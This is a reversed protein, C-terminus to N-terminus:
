PLWVYEPSNVLTWVLDEARERWNASLQTTPPDGKEFERQRAIRIENSRTQLHNSWNVGDRAPWGPVPGAKAGTKRSSFDDALLSVFVDRESETPPRSLIQRFAVEVFDAPTEAALAMTVFASDESLQAARKAFVGNALIAPQLVTPEKERYTLPDQRTARWGFSELLTVATQAGPLSLSPRDRENGMTAFRWARTPLGLHLSGTELRGGDSDVTIEETHAEKGATALLSDLVQEATMRRRLPAALLRAKEPDATPQRQYAAANFILRAIHQADYDHTILERALWELLEPHSPQATEWDDVPEVIGLGMYRQWLRNVFVKAFRPNRPSTIRLALEERPDHPDTLLDRPVETQFDGEFPWRPAIKQGPKLSVKVMLSAHAKDDGPITSSKPLTQEGRHLMAALNFLDEQSFDHSPADHCRACRMDFALFALGINQAKAALPADNESAVAFGATGGYRTSGEMLILETAFRDLPKNDLLAEYIWWRFPGTNNLTPNVINPNEALVDQWYGVWNDAWGRNKLLEDIVRSRKHPNTDAVFEQVQQASPTVGIIDLYIRRIFAYDDCIPNAAVNENALKANIYGDISDYPLSSAQGVQARAWDHRRQWYKAYEAAAALRRSQNSALLKDRTSFEWATWGADTLPFNGLTAANGSRDASATQNRSNATSTENGFGIVWFDATGAPAMSVSTEGLEPRRKKGGVVVELRLRHQGAPLDVERVEEHDGPQLPRINPSVHSEVPVYANHGDTKNSQFPNEVILQDDIYLRAGSRSRLLIRQKGVPWDVTAHAWLVFPSSRDDIVGHPNYKRPLEVFALDQQTFRESPTPPVFDWNWQDPIGELVEVLVQREPIPVSTIYPKAQVVKWRAAIREASLATRYIAIEDISGSFSNGANNGSASGIWIQDDDVVPAENTQGGYDWKGKSGRGDIYGRVSDGRGFQYSVAVHHWGSNPAFGAESTWRHWDEQVGKRNDADRFLFSIHCAGDKGVLRLSWNHNDAGFGSNNTRGKGIVYVQQGNALKSPDVWAELTIADGAAFDYPSNAGPDDYRLSAPKEFTVARNASEFLPFKPAVPGAKSFGVGSTIQQPVWAQGNAEAAGREDDFRWYAAPQDARVIDAYTVAPPAGNDSDNQLQQAAAFTVTGLVFVLYAPTSWCSYQVMVVLSTNPHALVSPPCGKPYPLNREM